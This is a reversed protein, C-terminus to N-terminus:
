ETIFESRVCLLAAQRRETRERRFSYFRRDCATCWPAATMRSPRVGARRAQELIVAALNLTTKGKSTGARRSVAGPERHFERAVEPGVEYCCKRIHPGLSVHLDGPRSQYRRGLAAVAAAVIGKRVGRRGAHVLGIARRRPDVLFVPVCDATFVRLTLAPSRTVLGDTNQKEVPTPQAVSAIRRGHVQQGGAWCDPSLGMSRLGRAFRRPDKMDGGVRSTVAALVGFRQEWDPLRAM